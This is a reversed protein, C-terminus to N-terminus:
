FPNSSLRAPVIDAAVRESLSAALLSLCVSLPGRESTRYDIRTEGALGNTTHHCLFGVPCSSPLPSSLLMLPPLPLPLLLLLLLPLLPAPAPAAPLRSHIFCHILHGPRLSYPRSSRCTLAVNRAGAFFPPPSECFSHNLARRPFDSSLLLLLLILEHEARLSLPSLKAPATNKASVSHLGGGVVVVILFFRCTVQGDM